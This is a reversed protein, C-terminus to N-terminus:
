LGCRSALKKHGSAHGELAKPINDVGTVQWGRAALKVSWIGSGCGLDLAQGYPPQREAEERAFLATIQESIPKSTAMQEWPTFGVWYLIKYAVSMADEEERESVGVSRRDRRVAVGDTYRRM